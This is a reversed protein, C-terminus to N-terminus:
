WLTHRADDGRDMAYRWLAYLLLALGGAIAGAIYRDTALLAGSIMALVFAILPAPSGYEM